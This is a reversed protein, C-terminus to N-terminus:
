PCSLAIMWDLASVEGAVQAAGTVGAYIGQAIAVAFFLALMVLLIWLFLLREGLGTRQGRALSRHIRFAEAYDEFTCTFAFTM